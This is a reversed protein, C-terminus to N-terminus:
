VTESSEDASAYTGKECGGSCQSEYDAVNESSDQQKIIQEFLKKRNEKKKKAQQEVIKKESEIDKDLNSFKGLTETTDIWISNM